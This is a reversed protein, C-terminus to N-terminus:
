RDPRPRAAPNVSGDPRATALAALAEGTVRHVTWEDMGVAGISRYFGLAPENWDLVSWELRRYGRDVCVQALTALLSTGYGLGRVEPRVFLDELYVGHTGTWTSVNLCWIAFGGLDGEDGGDTSRHEVVHAYAAPRGSPTTADVGPAEPGGGFLLATLQQETMEVQDASKEYEALGRVMRLIEPVDAPLAPRVTGDV